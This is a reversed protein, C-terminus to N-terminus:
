GYRIAIWKGILLIIVPRAGQGYDMGMKKTRFKPEYVVPIRVFIGIAEVFIVM